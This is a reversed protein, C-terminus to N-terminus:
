RLIEQVTREGAVVAKLDAAHKTLVNELVVVVREFDEYHLEGGTVPLTYRLAVEGFAPDYGFAGLPIRSNLVALGLMLGHVRDAPTDDLMAYLVGDVRFRFLGVEPDRVVTIQYAHGQVAFASICTEDDEPTGSLRAAELGYREFYKQITQATAKKGLAV